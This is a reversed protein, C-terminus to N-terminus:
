AEVEAFPLEEAVVGKDDGPKVRPDVAFAPRWASGHIGPDLGPIVYSFTISTRSSGRM